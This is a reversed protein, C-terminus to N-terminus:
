RPLVLLEWDVCNQVFFDLEPVFLMQVVVVLRHLYPLHSSDTRMTRLTKTSEELM